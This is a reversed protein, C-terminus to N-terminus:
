KDDLSSVPPLKNPEKWLDEEFERDQERPKKKPKKVLLEDWLEADWYKGFNITRNKSGKSM